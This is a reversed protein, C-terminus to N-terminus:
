LGQAARSALDAETKSLETLAEGFSIGRQEALEEAMRELEAWAAGDTPEAGLAAQMLEPREREVDVLAQSMAVGTRSAHADAAAMFPEPSPPVGMARRAPDLEPRQEAVHVLADAYKAGGSMQEAVLADFAAAPSPPPAAAKVADMRQQAEADAKAEFFAETAAADYVLAVARLTALRFHSRNNVNGQDPSDFRGSEKHQEEFADEAVTDRVFELSAGFSGPDEQALRLVFRVKQPDAAESFYLDGRLGDGDRRLNRTRGAHSFLKDDLVNPHQFRTKLGDPMARGAAVVQDLFATDIWRGWGKVEGRQALLYGRIVSNKGDATAADDYVTKLAVQGKVAKSAM